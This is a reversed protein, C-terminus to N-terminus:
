ESGPTPTDSRPARADFFRTDYAIAVVAGGEVFSPLEPRREHQWRGIVGFELATRERLTWAVRVDLAGFASEGDTRTGGSLSGLLAWRPAARWRLGGSADLFPNVDGALRDVLSTVRAVLDLELRVGPGARAIGAEGVPLVSRAASLGPAVDYALAAGGGAWGDLQPTLRRRWTLSASAWASDAQGGTMETTSRTGTAAVCLTDRETVLREVSGDLSLTQQPPLLARASANAARSTHWTGKAAVTTRPDLSVSGGALTDLAEFALSQESTVQSVARTGLGHWPDALPDTWGRVASGTAAARWPRDHRTEVGADVSHNVLPSQRVGVDSSWFRPAYAATLRLDSGDLLVGARPIASLAARSEPSGLSQSAPAMTSTRGEARLGFEVDMNALAVVAAVLHPALACGVNV